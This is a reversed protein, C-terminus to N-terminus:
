FKRTFFKNDSMLSELTTFNLRYLLELVYPNDLPTEYIANDGYQNVKDRAKDPELLSKPGGVCGGVCGMGEFFNAQTKGEILDTIMKKCDPVGDAQQSRIAIHRKPSLRALTSKVAESVGGTRAYIRGAKSSFEKVNDEMQTLNVHLLKFLEKTEQFTLVYDVAGAIDKERAEAKKKGYV